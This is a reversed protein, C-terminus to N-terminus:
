ITASARRRARRPRSGGARRGCPGACRAASGKLGTGCTASSTATPAGTCSARASGSSPPPSSWRNTKTQQQFTLHPTYMHDLCAPQDIHIHAHACCTIQYLCLRTPLCTRVRRVLLLSSSALYFACMLIIVTRWENPHFGPRTICWGKYYFPRAAVRRSVPIGVPLLPAISQTDRNIRVKAILVFGVLSSTEHLLQCNILSVGMWFSCYSWAVCTSWFSLSLLMMALKALPVCTLLRCLRSAPRHRQGTSTM